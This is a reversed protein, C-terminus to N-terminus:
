IPLNRIRYKNEEVVVIVSSELREAHNELLFILHKIVNNPTQNALRFTIVTPENDKSNALIDGFDLDFTLIIRNEKVAKKIIEIDALTQLKEDALHVTEYGVSELWLAVTRSVGMDLLFRM